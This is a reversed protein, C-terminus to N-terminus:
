SEEHYRAEPKTQKNRNNKKQKSGLKRGRGKGTNSRAEINREMGRDGDRWSFSKSTKRGPSGPLVQTRGQRKKQLATRVCKRDTINKKADFSVTCFYMKQICKNLHM